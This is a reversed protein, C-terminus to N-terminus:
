KWKFLPIMPKLPDFEGGMASLTYSRSFSQHHENEFSIVAKMEEAMTDLPYEMTEDAALLPLDFEKNVPVLAVHIQVATANGSNRVVIAKADERMTAVIDPHFSSDQMILLSMVIIVTVIFIMGALYISIFFLLITLLIGGILLFKVRNDM